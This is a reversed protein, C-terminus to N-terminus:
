LNSTTDIQILCVEWQSEGISMRSVRSILDSIEKGSSVGM